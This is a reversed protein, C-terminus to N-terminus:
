MSISGKRFDTKGILLNILVPKGKRATRKAEKLVKPIDKKSKILYGKGGYGEAVTHYDTHRLQTGVDDELYEVQDREIQTWGADNGVVAIVPVNHRVMTDFEKISYGASGDGYIIWVESGPRCLKAGLAFGGGVGLTGYVGPDLWDLPGRPKLIYSASAVFDGGDAVIVSKEDLQKELEMLFHLPNVNGTKQKATEIIERDRGEDRGHLQKIWPDIGSKPGLEGALLILFRVPSSLIGLHPKRNMKLDNRDLNVSILYARSSISRGYDLRFDNPMGALLVLDAEKLARSRKHRIHLPHDKGMLGRAMGALFVPIGMDNVAKVLDEPPSHHSMAQSGIIFVPRQSERIRDAAYRVDNERIGPVAAEIRKPGMNGLDCTYIRDVHRKLYWKLLRNKLGKKRVDGSKDGYWERVLSEDYLLDIPVEVFVPGPVGSGALAFANEIVPVIDCTRGITYTEKVISKLISIQDIDQLSGRGKLVTAPAGGFITVPSQAMKANQVATVTNTVGPGATVVAVGPVGTLRAVADAAFVANAEHRVDIIRIGAKKSEVLIPAIHGGCLTFIFDVKHDKLIEAIVTASNM